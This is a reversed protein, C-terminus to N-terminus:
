DVGADDLAVRAARAGFEALVSLDDDARAAIRPAMRDPDLIGDPTHVHRQRIGSAHEIFAASSKQLPELGDAARRRNEREVWLNFCDVLAENGISAEPISVGIGSLAVRAIRPRGGGKDSLPAPALREKATFARSAEM